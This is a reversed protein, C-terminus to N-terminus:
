QAPINHLGFWEQVVNRFRVFARDTCRQLSVREALRQYIASSRPTRTRYLVAEMAEKPRAPKEQGQNLYGKEQLWQRLSMSQDVWGLCDAVHLSDSWVWAELEPDLVIAQARGAWECQSLRDEVEEEIKNPALTDCGSGERDFMLIAHEFRGVLPLLFDVGAHCCGNDKQPHRFVQAEISRIGLAQHRRLLSCVAAAMNKDAVLVVLDSRDSMRM